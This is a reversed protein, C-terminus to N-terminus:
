LTDAPMLLTSVAFLYPTSTRV